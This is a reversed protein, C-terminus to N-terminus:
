RAQAADRVRSPVPPDDGAIFGTAFVWTAYPVGSAYPWRGSVPLRRRRAPGRRDTSAPHPCRFDGDPGFMEAQAREPFHSAVLWAHSSGLTLCWGTGPDGTSIVVMTELFTRFDFEYGGFRRPQTIRSFGAKLFAEHM